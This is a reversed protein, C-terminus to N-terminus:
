CTSWDRIRDPLQCLSDLTRHGTCVLTQQICGSGRFSFWVPLCHSGVPVQKYLSRFEAAGSVFAGISHELATCAARLHEANIPEQQLHFSINELGAINIGQSHVLFASGVKGGLELLEAEAQRIGAKAEQLRISIPKEPKSCFICLM